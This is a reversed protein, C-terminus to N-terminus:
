TLKFRRVVGKAELERADETPIKALDGKNFPGIQKFDSTSIIPFKDLFVVIEYRGSAKAPMELVRKLSGWLREEEATLDRPERGQYLEAAIKRVRLEIISALARALQIRIGEELAPPLATRRLEENLRNVLEAYSPAPPKALLKANMEAELWAYIEGLM